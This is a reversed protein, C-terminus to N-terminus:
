LRVFMRTRRFIKNVWTYWINYQRITRLIKLNGVYIARLLFLNFFFSRVLIFFLIIIYLHIYSVTWFYARYNLISCDRKSYIGIIAPQINYYSFNNILIHTFTLKYLTLIVMYGNNWNVFVYKNLYKLLSM